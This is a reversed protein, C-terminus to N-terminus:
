REAPQPRLVRLEGTPQRAPAAPRTGADPRPCATRRQAWRM